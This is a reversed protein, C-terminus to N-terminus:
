VLDFGIMEDLSLVHLDRPISYLHCSWVKGVHTIFLRTSRGSDVERGDRSDTTQSLFLLYSTSLTDTLSLTSVFYVFHRLQENLCGEGRRAGM